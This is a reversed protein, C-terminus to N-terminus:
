ELAYGTGKLTGEEKKTRDNNDILYSYSAVGNGGNGKFGEGGQNGSKSSQYIEPQQTTFGLVGNPSKGTHLATKPVM